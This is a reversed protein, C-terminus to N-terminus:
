ITSVAYTESVSHIHDLSSLITKKKSKLLETHQQINIRQYKFFNEKENRFDSILFISGWWNKKM